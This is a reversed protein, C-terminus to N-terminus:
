VLLPPFLIPELSKIPLFPLSLIPLLIVFHQTVATIQYPPSLFIAIVIISIAFIRPIRQGPGYRLTFSPPKFLPSRRVSICPAYFNILRATKSNASLRLPVGLSPLFIGRICRTLWSELFRYSVRILVKLGESRVDKKM